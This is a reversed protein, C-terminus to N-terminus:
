ETISIFCGNIRVIANGWGPAILSKNSDFTYNYATNGVFSTQIPLSNPVYPTGAPLLDTDQNVYSTPVAAMIGQNKMDLFVEDIESTNPFPAQPSRPM